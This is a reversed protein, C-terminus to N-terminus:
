IEIGGVVVVFLSDKPRSVPIRFLRFKEYAKQGSGEFGKSIDKYLKKSLVMLCHQYDMGKASESELFSILDHPFQEIEELIQKPLELQDDVVV